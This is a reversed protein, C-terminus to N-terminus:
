KRAVLRGYIRDALARTNTFVIAKQYTENALLWQV